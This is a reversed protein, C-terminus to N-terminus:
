GLVGFNADCCFVFEIKNRSLWDIENNIRQLDFQKIKRESKRGWYCFACTFPCGRNTEIRGQWKEDPNQVILEDFVGSLYPSPIDNIDQITEKFENFAIISDSRKYGISPVVDWERDRCSEIVKLFPIEGEGFSAIDIFPYKKLFAFMKENLDPVQPGGFVNVIQRKERKLRSAVELSVKFNWLYASFFVIDAGSLSEVYKEINGRKYIIPFFECIGSSELKKEAYARLVGISYPFYYQGGFSDGIEVLGIKIKKMTYDSEKLIANDKYAGITSTYILKKIGNLRAAELLNTNIMLMPVFHSALKSSSTQVTGQVGAMHFVFDMDNTVEKCFQFSSLDGYVHLARNDVNLKDLSVIKVHANANCLIDVVQRGILGTGGTVLVNRGNFTNLIDDKIM